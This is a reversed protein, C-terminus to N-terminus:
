QIRIFSEHLPFHHVRLSEDNCNGDIQHPTFFTTGTFLHGTVRSDISVCFDSQSTRTPRFHQRPTRATFTGSIRYLWWEKFSTTLNWYYYQLISKYQWSLIMTMTWSSSFWSGRGSRRRQGRGVMLLVCFWRWDSSVVEKRGGDAKLDRWSSACGEDDVALVM